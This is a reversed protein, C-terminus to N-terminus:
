VFHSSSYYEYLLAVGNVWIGDLTFSFTEAWQQLSIGKFKDNESMIPTRTQWPINIEPDNWKITMAGADNRTASHFYEITSDELAEFGIAYHGEAYVRRNNLHSLEIGEYLGFNPSYPNTEVVYLLIAGHVVHILKNMPPNVQFHLGRIVGLRSFSRSVQRIGEPFLNPMKSDNFLETFWGRHDDFQEGELIEVGELNYNM